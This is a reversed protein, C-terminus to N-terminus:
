KGIILRYIRSVISSFFFLVPFAISFTLYIGALSANGIFRNFLARGFRFYPAMSNVANLFFSNNDILSGVIDVVLVGVSAVIAVIAVIILAIRIANSM